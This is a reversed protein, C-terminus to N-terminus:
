RSRDRKSKCRVIRKQWDGSWGHRLAEECLLIAEDYDKDRERIIALQEFGTHAPLTEM